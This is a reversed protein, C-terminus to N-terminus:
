VVYEKPNDFWLYYICICALHKLVIVVKEEEEYYNM